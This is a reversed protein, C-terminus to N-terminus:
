CLMAMRTRTTNKKVGEKYAKLAFRIRCICISADNLFVKAIFIQCCAILLVINTHLFIFINTWGSYPIVENKTSMSTEPTKM